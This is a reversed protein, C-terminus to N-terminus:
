VFPRHIFVCLEKLESHHYAEAIGKEKINKKPVEKYKLSLPFEKQFPFPDVTIEGRNLWRPIFPQNSTHLTETNKFGKRFWPHENEKSAGPQNLCLYLSLNDSFQLLRFHQMVLEDNVEQIEGKIREQRKREKQLFALCDSDTSSAFFSCFHMSCLLAAYASTEEIEDLGIRYFALKPLLPYDSFSYPEGCRDNWIPTEDLGIWGRDHEYAAYQVHSFAEKSLLSNEDFHKVIEGSLFAHDHQLIMYFSHSTERIIM